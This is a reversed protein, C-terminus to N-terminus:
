SQNDGLLPSVSEVFAWVMNRYDIIQKIITLLKSIKLFDKSSMPFDPYNELKYYSYIEM